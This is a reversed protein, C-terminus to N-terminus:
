SGGQGAGVFSFKFGVQIKDEIDTNIEQGPMPIDPLEMDFSTDDSM